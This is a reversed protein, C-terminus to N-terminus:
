TIEWTTEDSMIFKLRNEFGHNLLKRQTILQEHVVPHSVLDSIVGTNLRKVEM